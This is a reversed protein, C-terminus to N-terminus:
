VGIDWAGLNGEARNTNALSIITDEDLTPAFNYKTDKAPNRYKEWSGPTKFKWNHGVVRSALRENEQTELVDNDAGFNPVFYDM